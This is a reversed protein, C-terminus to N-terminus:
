QTLMLLIVFPFKLYSKFSAILTVSVEVLDCFYGYIHVAEDEDEWVPLWALWRPLIDNVAAISGYKLVKTVASIANETPSVNEAARAEPSEIVSILMPLAETDCLILMYMEILLEKAINFLHFFRTKSQM